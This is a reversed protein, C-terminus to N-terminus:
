SENEALAMGDATAIGARDVPMMITFVAGQGPSSNVTISGGHNEVIKRCIALGLGTGQYSNGHLRQFLGFVKERFQEDFGIGNDAVQICCWGSGNVPLGAMDEASPQVQKITIVPNDKTFKLSNSILNQFLQRIQGPRAAIIPLRGIEIVAEKEKVVIDIDDIIESIIENLNAPVIGANDNNSLKSLTLVDEILRQMRNSSGIIKDIYVKEEKGLADYIKEKLFSGFLQIKRLPEKLDHSAVSAFQVLDYNSQELRTNMASLEGTTRQLEDLSRQQMSDADKKQTVDALTIVVGDPMQVAVIYVWKHAHTDLYEAHFQEGTLAVRKIDNFYGAIPIASETILKRGRLDQVATGFIQQVKDNIALFEFDEIEGPQTFITRLAIIGNPSSNFVAEIIGNLKKIESIDIFNVVVGDVTKDLCIYPNIRMLFTGGNEMLVEKEMTRSTKMVGKIANIFDLRMFNTSIDTISRGIDTEILNIQRTAVPTFKRIILRKDIFIQGIDTNKFYNNQDDSLSILEKIKLQYESNVTHLEENLSQLEENTSQLEENSSVIEENSAQLEENATEVEEIVAQLNERLERLEDELEMIRDSTYEEKDRPSSKIREDTVVVDELVVFLFPQLYEKPVLYPKVIINVYRQDKGEIVKVGKIIVRDNDKMAKRVAMGLAISLDPSVLKLLNFNLKGDPLSMFSKFNGIAQKVEFEKDIFIGAYKHEELLTDKFIEPINNLANKSRTAGLSVFSERGLPVLYNENDYPQSKILCKYLKWKKDIDKFYDTLAGMSESPGLMLYGGESLAFHFKKLISKQLVASMYILMNRCSLFDIKSFPPDKAINHKAFVIMKRIVPVVVYENGEKSFFKNLREASIGKVAEMSYIGKSAVNLADQDIDTAFIKINLDYKQHTELFEQILMAVSYAEEGTSCAAVWLKVYDGPKKNVFVAPIVQTKLLEFAETDRFFKTVNILFEKGLNIIEDTNDKLMKYYEAISRLNHESMRKALRRSLTPRKYMSFDHTTNHRVLDLIDSFILEEKEDFANFSKILPSEKLFEMLEDAMMEPPLILDAHGTAIASNPMGDFGATMPDQVIVTGGNSKIFATGKSGDTGTGSLIVGIALKGKDAALSEFFHDIAMNPGGVKPKNELLFKNQQITIIKKNPILYVCNAVVEMGEEAEFIQMSTNKSLIEGMLSKHESSLHQIIVFAFGSNDPINDFLEQLAELGGASAGIGVVYLENTIKSTTAKM